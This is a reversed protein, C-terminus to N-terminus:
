YTSSSSMSSSSIPNLTTIIPMSLFTLTPLVLLVLAVVILLITFWKKGERHALTAAFPLSGIASITAFAGVAIIWLVSLSVLFTEILNDVSKKEYAFQLEGVVLTIEHILFTLSLTIFVCSLVLLKINNKKMSYNLKCAQHHVVALLFWTM